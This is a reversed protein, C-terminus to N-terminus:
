SKWDRIAAVIEQAADEQIYHGAGDLLVTRHHPFVEEWRRREAARFAFDKTGWVVLAPRDGLVALKSEIDALFSRSALIERPFVHVPRRSQPTPFPGRYANMVAAPLRKRRVGAPIIHEVFFNRQMILWGGIRGGLLRSFAQTGPDSKPWAWTNGIVFASFRDPHRTAVAFGIPGGWDQVMLTAERLDLRLTLDELVQAHEAPTYRYGPGARSLGFGPYDVAICRYRDRLGVILDRYLFSWTPNGHLLILPPGVGEDLYHVRSGNVDEFHSAFPYLDTPVWSPRSEGETAV